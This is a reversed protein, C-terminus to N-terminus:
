APMKGMWRSIADLIGASAEIACAGEGSGSGVGTSIPGAWGHALDVVVRDPVPDDDHHRHRQQEKDDEGRGGVRDPELPNREAADLAAWTRVPHAGEPQKLERGVADLERELFAEDRLLRVLDEIHERRRDRDPRREQGPRHDRDAQPAVGLVPDRVDVDADQEDEGDAGEVHIRDDDAAVRRVVLVRQQASQSRGRLQDAVLHREAEGQHRSRSM